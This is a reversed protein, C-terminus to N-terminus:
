ISNRLVLVIIFYTKLLSRTRLYTITFLKSFKVVYKYLLKLIINILDRDFYGKFKNLSSSYM